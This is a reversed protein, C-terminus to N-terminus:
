GHKADRCRDLDPVVCADLMSQLWERDVVAVVTEDRENTSGAVAHIHSPDALLRDEVWPGAASATRLIRQAADSVTETRALLVDRLSPPLARPDAGSDVAGLIEEVLFTEVTPTFTLM